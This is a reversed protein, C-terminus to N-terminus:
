SWRRRPARPLHVGRAIAPLASPLAVKRSETLIAILAGYFPMFPVRYRALSGFNLTSLGVFTCGVVTIVTCMILFPSSQIRAVIGGVGRLRFAHILMWTICTMEVASILVLPSTVDFLQPRFLANVLALPARALQGAMSQSAQPDVDISSGGASRAWAQQKSGVADSINDLALDPSVRSVLVMGLALAGLGLALYLPGLLTTDAGRTRRIRGVVYHLVLGLILPPLAPARFILILTLGIAAYVIARVFRRGYVARWAAFLAGTGIICLAEKHLASTWFAVSPFLVIATFLRSPSGEPYADRCARYIGIAGFMSLGAVLVQLATESGRLFFLLWAAVAFMSGTNTGASFVGRDFASPQQFLLLVLERASWQFSRDLAQALMVGGKGYHLADGGEVIVRSYFMQAAACLLYEAFALWVLRRMPVPFTSAVLGTVGALIVVIMATMVIDLSM